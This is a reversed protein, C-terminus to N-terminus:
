PFLLTEREAPGSEYPIPLNHRDAHGSEWLIGALLEALCIGPLLDAWCIGALLDAWCIGSAACWCIGVFVALLDAWSIWRVM